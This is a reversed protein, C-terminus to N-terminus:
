LAAPNRVAQVEDAKVTGGGALVLVVDGGERRAENVRAYVSGDLTETDGQLTAYRVAFTYSGPPANGGASTKGDWTVVTADPEVKQEAVTKGDADIVLLTAHAASITPEPTTVEVTGGNFAVPVEARVERGLWDALSGTSSATVAELISTLKDNTTIQQEVSSFQALQAVFETSDIPKLPDQNKMQATLLALFTDFDSALATRSGSLEASEAAAPGPRNIAANIAAANDVAAVTTM